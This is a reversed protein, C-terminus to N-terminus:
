MARWKTKRFTNIEAIHSNIMDPKVSAITFTIKDIETWLGIGDPSFNIEVKNDKCYDLVSNFHNKM